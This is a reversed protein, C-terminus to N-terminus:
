NKSYLAAKAAVIRRVKEEEATLGHLARYQDLFKGQLTYVDEFVKDNKTTKGKTLNYYMYCAGYLEIGCLLASGHEAFPRYFVITKTDQDVATNAGNPLSDQVVVIYLPHKAHIPYPNRAGFKPKITTADNTSLTDIFVADFGAIFQDLPVSTTGHSVFTQLYQFGTSIKETVTQSRLACPATLFALLIIKKM